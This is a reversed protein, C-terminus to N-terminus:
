LGILINEESLPTNDPLEAILGGDSKRGFGKDSGNGDVYLEGKPELYIMEYDEKALQKLEKKSDAIALTPDAELDEIVQDVLKDTLETSKGLSAILPDTGKEALGKESGNSDILLEGKREDYIFIHGDDSLKKLEKPTEATPIEIATTNVLTDIIDDTVAPNAVVEETIVISDGESADFDTIEDALKKKFTENGTFVFSDAGDGGTLSDKGKGNALVDDGSTGIVDEKKKSEGTIANSLNISVTQITFTNQINTINEVTGINGTQINGDGNNTITTNTNNNTINNVINNIVTTAINGLNSPPPNSNSDTSPETGKINDEVGKMVPFRDGFTWTFDDGQIVEVERTTLYSCGGTGFEQIDFGSRDPAIVINFKEFNGSLILTDDGAGGFLGLGTTRGCGTLLGLYGDIYFTDNGALGQIFVSKISSSLSNANITFTDDLSSGEWEIAEIANDLSQDPATANTIPHAPLGSILAVEADLDLTINDGLGQPRHHTSYSWGERNRLEPLNSAVTIGPLGQVSSTKGDAAFLLTNDGNGQRYQDLFWGSQWSYGDHEWTM